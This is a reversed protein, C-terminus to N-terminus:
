KYGEKKGYPILHFYKEFIFEDFTAYSTGKNDYMHDIFTYIYFHIM